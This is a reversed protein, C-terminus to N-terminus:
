KEREGKIKIRRISDQCKQNCKSLIKAENDAFTGPGYKEDICESLHFAFTPKILMTVASYAIYFVGQFFSPPPPPYM